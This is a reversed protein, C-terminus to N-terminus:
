RQGVLRVRRPLIRRAGPVTWASTPRWRIRVASRGKPSFCGALRAVTAADDPAVFFARDRDDPLAALYGADVTSPVEIDLRLDDRGDQLLRLLSRPPYVDVPPDSIVVVEGRPLVAAVRLVADISDRYPKAARAQAALLEVHTGFYHHIQAIALGAALAVTVLEARRARPAGCV